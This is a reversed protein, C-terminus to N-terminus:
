GDLAIRSSFLSLAPHFFPDDRIVHDWSKKFNARELAYRTFPRYSFGRSASQHHVLEAQPCQITQYGARNLKLCLDIDNLEVPYEVENFGGVEAFKRREVAQCAGTVASLEHPVCLRSLYGAENAPADHYLHAAYGGMGVTVGVHQLTGSPFLLRAGVAGIDPQLAWDVLPALWNRHPMTMDNNLFLLVDGKTQEVALNCMRSYNFKGPAGIVKFSKRELYRDYLAIVRPDSSGNDVLTVDFQKHDCVAFLGELCPEILEYANKTPIIVNVHADTRRGLVPTSPATQLQEISCLATKLITRRLHTVENRALSSLRARRWQPSLFPMETTFPIDTNPQLERWFSAAGIYPLYQELVPSWDPKLLPLFLGGADLALEDAYILVADPKAAAAHWLASLAYPALKDEASLSSWFAARETSAMSDTGPTTENIRFRKDTPPSIPRRVEGQFRVHCVWDPYDQALLSKVLASDLWRQSFEAEFCVVIHFIPREGSPPPLRDFGTPEYSRSHRRRWEEFREFPIGKRASLLAQRSERPARIFEAGISQAANLMSNRFARPLLLFKPVRRCSDLAFAFPGPTAVPKIFVRSCGDPIQCIWHTKGYLTAAM